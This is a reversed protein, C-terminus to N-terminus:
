KSISTNNDKIKVNELQISTIPEEITTRVTMNPKGDFQELIQILAKLTNAQTNSGMSINVMKQALAEMTPVKIKVWKEGDKTEGFDVIQKGSYKVTGDTQLLKELEKKISVKRPQGKRNINQPNADFGKGRVHEIEGAM